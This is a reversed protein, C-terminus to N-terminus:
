GRGNILSQSVITVMIDPVFNKALCSRKSPTALTLCIDNNRLPDITYPDKDVLTSTQQLFVHLKLKM